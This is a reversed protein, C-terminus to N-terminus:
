RDWWGVMALAALIFVGATIVALFLGAVPFGSTTIRGLLVGDGISWPLAWRLLGGLTAQAERDLPVLLFGCLTSTASSASCLAVEVDEEGGARTRGQILIELEGLWTRRM